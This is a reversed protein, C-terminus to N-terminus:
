FQVLKPAMKPTMKPGGSLCWFAGGFPVLFCGLLCWCVGFRFCFCLVLLLLLWSRFFSLFVSLFSSIFFSLFLCVLTFFVVCCCPWPLLLRVCVCSLLKIYSSKCGSSNIELFLLAIKPDEKRVGGFSRGSTWASSKQAITSPLNAGSVRLVNELNTYNTSPEAAFSPHVFRLLDFCDQFM